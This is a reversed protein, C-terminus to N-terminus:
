ADDKAKRAAIAEALLINIMDTITTREARPETKAMEKAPIYNHPDIRVHVPKKVDDQM